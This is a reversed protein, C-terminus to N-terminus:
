NTVWCEVYGHYDLHQFYSHNIFAQKIQDPMMKCDFVKKTVFSM